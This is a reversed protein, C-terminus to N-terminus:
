KDSPQLQIAESSDLGAAKASRDAHDQNAPLSPSDARLALIPMSREVLHKWAALIETAEERLARSNEQYTSLRKLLGRSEAVEGDTWGLRRSQYLVPVNLIIRSLDGGQTSATLVHQIHFNTEEFPSAPASSPQVNREGSIPMPTAAVSSHTDGPLCPTNPLLSGLPAANLAPVPAPQVAPPIQPKAASISPHSALPAALPSESKTVYMFCFLAAIATSLLLLWPYARTTPNPTM